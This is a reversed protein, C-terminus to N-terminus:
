PDSPLRSRSTPWCRLHARGPPSCSPGPAASRGREDVAGTVRPGGGARDTLLSSVRRRVVAGGAERVAILLARHVSRPDVQHDSPSWFAGAVPGVLPSRERAAAATLEEIDMGWRHQTRALRRSEAVDDADYAVTMTGTRRLGVDLGSAAELDAAFAPWLAASDRNMAALREEGYDAETVAALMGAAAHTAGDGPTPDLVEVTLGASLARWAVSLGIIGAGVVLLDRVGGDAGGDARHHGRAPEVM